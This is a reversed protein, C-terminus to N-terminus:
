LENNNYFMIEHLVLRILNCSLCMNDICWDWMIALTYSKVNPIDIDMSVNGNDDGRRTGYFSVMNVGVM